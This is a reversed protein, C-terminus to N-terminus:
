WSKSVRLQGTLGPDDGTWTYGSHLAVNWGKGLRAAIGVQVGHQDVVAAFGHQSPVDALRLTSAVAARLAEPSFPSAM